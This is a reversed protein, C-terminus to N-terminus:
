RIFQVPESRRPYSFTLAIMGVNRPIKNFGDVLEDRQHNTSYSATFAVYDSFRYIASLTARYVRSDLFTGRDRTYDGYSGSLNLELNQSINHTLSANAVSLEVLGSEGILSTSGHDYGIMLRGASYSQQYLLSVNFGSENSTYTPGILFSINTNSNINHAVGIRPTHVSEELDFIGSEPNDFSYESYTYDYIMLTNESLAREYSLSVANTDGNVDNALRDREHLFDLQARSLPSIRYSVAPQISTRNGAIRGEGAGTSINLESPIKSENYSSELSLVVSESARYLLDAGIHRRMNSSDLEPNDKYTEIDQNFNFTAILRETEYGATVGPSVRTIVDKSRNETSVLINDDSLLAIVIVPAIYAAGHVQTSLLTLTAIGTLKKILM